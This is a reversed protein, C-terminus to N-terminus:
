GPRPSASPNPLSHSPWQPTYPRPRFWNYYPDRERDHKKKKHLLLGQYGILSLIPLVGMSDKILQRQLATKCLSSIGLVWWGIM